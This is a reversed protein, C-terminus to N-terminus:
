NGALLKEVDKAAAACFGAKDADADIETQSWLADLDAQALGSKQEARQVGDGLQSEKGADLALDCKAGAVGAKYASVLDAPASQALVAGATLVSAFAVAIVLKVSSTIMTTGMHKLM